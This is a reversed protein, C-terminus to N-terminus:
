TALTFHDAAVVEGNVMVDVGHRGPHLRRISVHKMPHRKELTASEGAALRLEKWKFVKPNAKGSKKVYHVRYDVLVPLAKKGRNVLTLSLEVGYGERVKKPRVKLEAELDRPARYGLVALAKADGAKILSRLAHRVLKKRDASAGKWWRRAVDVVLAPHDKAIDNLNNAVSRRVYLEPDDKLAELIPLIPSPDAVLDDLRAGWPLRPRVGESCWRRVHPSPHGTLELLRPFVDGPYRQVFPRVAFESSFRQTLEIMAEFAADLDRPDDAAHDAILQGVPWQLFGDTVAETDEMIPPLSDIVVRLMDRNRAPLQTRLANSWQRVRDMMELSDLDALAEALFVDRDFRETAAAFQEALAEAAARDFYDKFARRETDSM